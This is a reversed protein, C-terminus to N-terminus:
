NSREMIEKLNLLSTDLDKGLLGPIDMFIMMANLPYKMESNFAWIVRSKENGLNYTSISSGANGEFPEIFRLAYDIKQGDIIGTIEQEGKGVQSNDSDWAMTFGKTGDTGTYTKRAAPDTRMWKNFQNHNKLQRVYEFVAQGPQNIVVERQLTYAKKTFIAAVLIIGIIAGIVVLVKIFIKM